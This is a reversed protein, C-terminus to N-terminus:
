SNFLAAVSGDGHSAVLGTDDISYDHGLGLVGGAKDLDSGTVKTDRFDAVLECGSM